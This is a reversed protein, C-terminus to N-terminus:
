LSQKHFFKMSGCKPHPYEQKGDDGCELRTQVVIVISGEEGYPGYLGQALIFAVEVHQEVVVALKEGAVHAAEAAVLSRVTLPSEHEKVFQGFLHGAIVIIGFDAPYLVNQGFVDIVHRGLLFVADAVVADVDCLHPECPFVIQVDFALEHAALIRLLFVHEAQDDVFGRCVPIVIRVVECQLEAVVGVFIRRQYGTRGDHGVLEVGDSGQQFPLFPHVDADIGDIVSFLEVLYVELTCLFAGGAAGAM